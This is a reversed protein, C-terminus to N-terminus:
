SIDGIEVSQPIFLSQVNALVEDMTECNNDEYNDINDEIGIELNSDSKLDQLFNAGMEQFGSLGDGRNLDRLGELCHGLIDVKTGDRSDPDFFDHGKEESVASTVNSDFDIGNEVEKVM